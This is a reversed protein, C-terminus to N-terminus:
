EIVKPVLYLGAEVQPAITQFHSCLNTESVVDARLRALADLPHAMPTIGTTDVSKMQEVFDLIDSLHRTYLPIDQVSLSIRALHAIKEVEEKPLSM